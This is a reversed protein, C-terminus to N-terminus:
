SKDTGNVIELVPEMDPNAIIERSLGGCAEIQYKSEDKVWTYCYKTFIGLPAMEWQKASFWMMRDNEALPSLYTADSKKISNYLATFLDKYTKISRVPQAQASMAQQDTTSTELEPYTEDDAPEDVENSEIKFSKYGDQKYNHMEHRKEDVVDQKNYSGFLTERNGDIEATLRYYTNM